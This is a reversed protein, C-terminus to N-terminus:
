IFSYYTLPVNFRINKLNTLKYFSYLISVHNRVFERPIGSRRRMRPIGTRRRMAYYGVRETTCAIGRKVTITLRRM